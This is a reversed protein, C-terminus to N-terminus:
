EPEPLSAILEEVEELTAYQPLKYISAWDYGIELDASNSVIQGVMFDKEMIPVIRDNYWKVIAPDKRVNAYISDYITSTFFIDKEYGAEDILKHMRNIALATLLSWSQCTGNNLTRIDKDPRDSYLRLGLALHIYGREKASKLVYNERYATIGPFM